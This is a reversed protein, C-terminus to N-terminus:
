QNVLGALVSGYLETILPLMRDPYEHLHRSVEDALMRLIGDLLRKQVATGRSAYEYVIKVMEEPSNHGQLLKQFFSNVQTPLFRSSM